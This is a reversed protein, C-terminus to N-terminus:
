RFEYRGNAAVSIRPVIKDAEFREWGALLDSWLERHEPLEAAAVLGRMDRAPFIHVQAGGQWNKMSTVTVWLEEIREDGMSICGISVCDGHIMIDSGPSVPDGLIKDSRNPYSVQMSLHYASASNVYGITYFGEPVQLDGTKRKPGLTGSFYCIGYTTVHTLPGTTEGSAWVEVLKDRKFVRLLLQRPPFSVGAQDFLQTVVPLRERRAQAMRMSATTLRSAEYETVPRV